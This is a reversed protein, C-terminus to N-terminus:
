HSFIFMSQPGPSVKPPTPLLSEINAQAEEFAKTPIAVVEKVQSSTYRTNEVHHRSSSRQSLMLCYRFVSTLARCLSACLLVVCCFAQHVHLEWIWFITIGLLYVCVCSSMILGIHMMADLYCMAIGVFFLETPEGFSTDWGNVGVGDKGRGCRRVRVKADAIAKTTEVANTVAESVATAM